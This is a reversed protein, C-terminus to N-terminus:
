AISASRGLPFTLHRIRPEACSRTTRVSPIVPHFLDSCVLCVSVTKYGAAVLDRRRSRYRGLAVTKVMVSRQFIQPLRVYQVTRKVKQSSNPFAVNAQTHLDAQRSFIHHAKGDISERETQCFLDSILRKCEEMKTAYAKKHHAM